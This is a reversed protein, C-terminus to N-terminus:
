NRLKAARISARYGMGMLRITGDPFELDGNLLRCPMSHLALFEDQDETSKVTANVHSPMRLFSRHSNLLPLLTCLLFTTEAVDLSELLLIILAM